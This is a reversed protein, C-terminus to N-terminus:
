LFCCCFCRFDANPRPGGDHGNPPPDRFSSATQKTDGQGSRLFFTPKPFNVSPVNKCREVRKHVMVIRQIVLRPPFYNWKGTKPVHIEFLLLVPMFSPNVQRVLPANHWKKGLFALEPRMKPHAFNCLFHEFSNCPTRFFVKENKKEFRFFGMILFNNM